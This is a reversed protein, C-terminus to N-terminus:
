VADLAREPLGLCGPHQAVYCIPRSFPIARVGHHLDCATINRFGAMHMVWPLESDEAGVDLVAADRPFSAILIRAFHAVDWSKLFEVRLRHRRRVAYILRPVLRAQIDWGALRLWDRAAAAERPSGLIRVAPDTVQQLSM